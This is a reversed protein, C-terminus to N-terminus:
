VYTSRLAHQDTKSCKSEGDPVVVVEVIVHDTAKELCINAQHLLLLRQHRASELVEEFVSKGPNGISHQPSPFAPLTVM